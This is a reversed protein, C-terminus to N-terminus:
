HSGSAGMFFRAVAFLAYVVGGAIIILPWWSRQNNRESKSQRFQLSGVDVGSKELPPPKIKPNGCHPCAPANDSVQANCENCTVLAM